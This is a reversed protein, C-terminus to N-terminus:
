LEISRTKALTSNNYRKDGTVDRLVTLFDPLRVPTDISDLEIELSAYESSFPYVDLEFLQGDYDFVYREKEVPPRDPSSEELLREYEAETIEKEIEIREGFSVDTKETYTYTYGAEATGRKRVRRRAGNEPVSLYTQVIETRSVGSIASLQEAAPRAIIYKREIELPKDEPNM